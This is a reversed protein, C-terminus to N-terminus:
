LGTHRRVQGGTRIAAHLQEIRGIAPEPIREDIARAEFAGGGDEDDAFTIKWKEAFVRLSSLAHALLKPQKYWKCKRSVCEVQIFGVYAGPAGCVPCLDSM